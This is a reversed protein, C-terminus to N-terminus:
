MVSKLFAFIEKKTKGRINLCPVGYKKALMWATRTGGQVNGDKDEKGCALLFRSPIPSELSRGLVQHCNRQHLKLGGPSLRDAAPHIERVLKLSIGFDVTSPKGLPITEGELDNGNFKDWPTYIEKMSLDGALNVGSEFASDSGLAKGSRLVYGQGALWKAVAEMLDFEEDSVERSGVGTYALLNSPGEKSQAEQSDNFERSLRVVESVAEDFSLSNNEAYKYLLHYLERIEEPLEGVLM